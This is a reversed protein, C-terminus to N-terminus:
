VKQVLSIHSWKGHDRWSYEDALCFVILHNIMIHLMTNVALSPAHEVEVERVERGVKRGGGEV